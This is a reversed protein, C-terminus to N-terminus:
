FAEPRAERAIHDLVANVFSPEKGEPFFARAIDVYENIVVKVPTDCEVFEAGAARFLARLTPDIRAIPWKAVLARDTMQDIRAQHNVAERVLQRFLKPDGEAYEDEDYVAGFRHDEFEVIVKDFSQDSQEMQFLAQVAYLRAASRAQTKTKAPKAAPKSADKSTM